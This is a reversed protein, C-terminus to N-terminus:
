LSDQKRLDRNKESGNITQAVLKFIYKGIMKDSLFLSSILFKIAIEKLVVATSLGPNKKSIVAL